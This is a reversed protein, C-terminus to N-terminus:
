VTQALEFNAVEASADGEIMRQAGELMYSALAAHGEYSLRINMLGEETPPDCTILVYCAHDKPVSKRVIHHVDGKM